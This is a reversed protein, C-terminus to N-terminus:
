EIRNHCGSHALFADTGVFLCVEATSSLPGLVACLLFHVSSSWCLQEILVRTKRLM